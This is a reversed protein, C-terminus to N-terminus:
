SAPSCFQESRIFELVRAVARNMVEEGKEASGLRADGIVGSPSRDRGQNPRIFEPYPDTTTPMDRILRDMKVHEPVIHLMVSTGFESAHGHPFADSEVLDEVLPQIFRWWDIQACVIGHEDELQTALEAIYPVNGAHGDLFLFRKAGWVMFSEVIDRTYAMLSSPQVSLTGPFGQLKRSYGVPILPAIFAPEEQAIREALAQTAIGDAGLPLHPGYIEVAGLPLLVLDTTSRHADFDASNMFLSSVM